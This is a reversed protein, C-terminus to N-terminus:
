RLTSIYIDSCCSLGGQTVNSWLFRNYWHSMNRGQNRLHEEVRIPFLQKQNKEDILDVFLAFKSLCKGVMLDAAEGDNQDCLTSNPEIITVFKELAKKSLVHGAGSM